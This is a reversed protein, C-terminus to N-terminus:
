GFGGDMIRRPSFTFVFRIGYAMWDIKVSAIATQM